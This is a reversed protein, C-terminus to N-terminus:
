RAKNVLFSEINGIVMAVNEERENIWHAILSSAANQWGPSWTVM